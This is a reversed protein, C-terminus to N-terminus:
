TPSSAAESGLAFDMLAEHRGAWSNQVLFAQRADESIPGQKLASKIADSFSGGTPVLHVREHVNRMPSLDTAVVSRGMACYEYVKLPSMSETLANRHHPIICVDAGHIINPVDAHPVLDHIHVNPLPAIAKVVEANLIPGVVIISAEPLSKSIEAIIQTDLREHIAGAYLLRPRPLSNLWDPTTWPPQWESPTLGNPVVTGPGTPGIRDLLNQSVACVRTGRSAMARYATEIDGHWPSLSALATWDDWAYYTVSGAWDLPAFAAFYPNTTIVAPTRLGMKEAQGRLRRDYKTYDARLADLGVHENRRLRLPTILKASARRPFPAEFPRTLRRAIHRPFSKYPNAVLLGDVRPSSLLTQVLQDPSFYGRQLADAWTEHWFTFVVDRAIM